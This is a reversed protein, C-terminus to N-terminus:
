RDRRLLVRRTRPAPVRGEGQRYAPNRIAYWVTDPHYPDATRKAVIGELDMKKTAEFLARGHEALAFIKYLPGTDSPLLAALERKREGLPADRLDRGDLWLLDFAAFALYGRGRLLENFVPRGKPDLSVIEGDLIVERTGLVREVRARLEAFNEFRDNWPSRIECGAESGHVFGRLGDYKPEFTWAPDDFADPRPLPVIPGMGPQSLLTDLASPAVLQTPM